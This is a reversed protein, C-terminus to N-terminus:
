AVRIDFHIHRGIAIGMASWRRGIATALDDVIAM